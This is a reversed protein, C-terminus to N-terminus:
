QNENQEARMRNARTFGGRNVLKTPGTGAEPDHVFGEGGHEGTKLQARIGMSGLTEREKNGIIGDKIHMIAQTIKFVASAGRANDTMRQTLKLKKAPSLKSNSEVWGAFNHGLSDLNEPNDVRSNVYSYIISRIDSLGAEPALFQEIQGGNSAAYRSITRLKNLDVPTGSETFKPPIIVVGRTGNFAKYKDGVPGRKGGLEPLNDFFGTAAAGSTSNGIRKGLPTDQQVFYEVTNPMFHYEGRDNLPPTSKYMLGAELFGRFNQPTAQEYVPCLQAMEQAFQKRSDTQSTRTYYNYVEQPTSLMQKAYKDGFHFRGSEDRGVVIAPSGDWKVELPKANSAIQALRELARKIGPLGEVYVLDEIHQFERGVKSGQSSHARVAQGIKAEDIVPANPDPKEGPKKPALTQRYLDRVNTDIDPRNAKLANLVREVSELDARTAQKGLLGKAIADPNYGFVNENNDRRLVGYLGLWKWEPNATKVLDGRLQQLYKGKYTSDPATRMSWRAFPVDPVFMFDVQVFRDTKGKPGYIPSCYHVSDGTKKLDTPAVGKAILQQILGDKSNTNMDIAIDMDGSSDAIGTSGLLNDALSLGTLKELFKTTMPVESKAIRDTRMEPNEKSWAPAKFVNGGELLQQKIQHYRM